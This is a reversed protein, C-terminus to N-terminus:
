FQIVLPATDCLNALDDSISKLNTFNVRIRSICKGEPMTVTVTCTTKKCPGQFGSVEADRVSVSRISWDTRNEIVLSYDAAFAPVAALLLAAKTIICRSLM